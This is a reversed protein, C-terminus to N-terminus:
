GGDPKEGMSEVMQYIPVKFGPSNPVLVIVPVIVEGVFAVRVM